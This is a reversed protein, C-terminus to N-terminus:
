SCTNQKLMMIYPLSKTGTLANLGGGGEWTAYAATPELVTTRNNDIKKITTEM